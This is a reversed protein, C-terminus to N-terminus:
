CMNKRISIVLKFWPTTPEGSPYADSCISSYQLIISFDTKVDCVSDPNETGKTLVTAFYPPLM